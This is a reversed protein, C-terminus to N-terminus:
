WGYVKRFEFRNVRRCGATLNRSHVSFRTPLDYRHGEFIIINDEMAAQIAQEGQQMLQLMQHHGAVYRRHRHKVVALMASRPEEAAIAEHADKIEEDLQARLEREYEDCAAQRGAAKTKQFIDYLSKSVMEWCMNEYM